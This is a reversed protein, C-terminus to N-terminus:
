HFAHWGFIKAFVPTRPPALANGALVPPVTHGTQGGDVMAAPKEAVAHSAQGALLRELSSRV